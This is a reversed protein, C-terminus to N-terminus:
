FLVFFGCLSFNSVRSLKRTDPSTRQKAAAFPNEPCCTWLRQALRRHLGLLAIGERECRGSPPPPSDAGAGMPPEVARLIKSRKSSSPDPLMEVSSIPRMSRERLISTVGASSALSIASASGSPLPSISKSSHAGGPEREGDERPSVARAPRRVGAACM